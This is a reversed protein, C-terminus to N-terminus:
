LGATQSQAAGRKTTTLSLLFITTVLAASVLCYECFARLVFAQIGTLVLSIVFAALAPWFIWQLTKASGSVEFVAASFVFLYFLLGFWSIPIGALESFESTLVDNCGRTVHCPIPGADRKLSLYFTDVMGIFAVLAIALARTKM